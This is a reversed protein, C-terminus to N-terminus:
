QILIIDQEKKLYETAYNLEGKTEAYICFLLDGKKVRTKLPTHLLVGAKSDHPAGALKAIKAIRRNDIEVVIGSKEAHIDTKFAGLVPEKFGGQAKCIAMFKEYARGSSLIREASLYGNGSKQNNALDIISGAILLSKNRLDQPAEKENRLVSLVDMAELAPGIGRGIPQSGDTFLVKVELSLAKGVVTFYYKLKEADEETRVKATKGIPIDIVVHTSGAASKKSLVSAIMQGEGDIDLAREIRILIDDAPSLKISGGWVFCGNEKEVVKKIKQIDLNVSTMTELTDATGAPSTIARSSTKPITLGAEAVIAVIIPTTRNGPLGGVCHKDVVIKNIWNLKQGSDIMAETLAIIESMNLNDGACATIFSAIEINSYQGKVIDDIIKQFAMKDLQKGYMKSRVLGMSAVPQVHAFSIKDGEIANLQKWASNSLGAKGEKLIGDTIIYLTAIISKEKVTVLVRNHAEFGESKCIHCDKRMFVVFEKQTDIGLQVLKLTNFENTM